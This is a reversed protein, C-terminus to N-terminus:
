DILETRNNNFLSPSLYQRVKRCVYRALKRIKTLSFIQVIVAHIQIFELFTKSNEAAPNKVGKGIEQVAIVHSARCFFSGSFPKRNGVDCWHVKISNAMNREDRVIADTKCIYFEIAEEQKAQVYVVSGAYHGLQKWSRTVCSPFM